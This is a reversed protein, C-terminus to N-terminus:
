RHRAARLERYVIPRVAKLGMKIGPQDVIWRVYHPPERLTGNTKDAAIRERLLLTAPNPKRGRRTARAQPKRARGLPRGFIRRAERAVIGQATAKSKHGARELLQRYEDNSRPGSGSADSAMAQILAQTAPSPRRGPKRSQRNQTPSTGVPSLQLKTGDPWELIIPGSVRLVQAHPMARKLLAM